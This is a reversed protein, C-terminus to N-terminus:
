SCSSGGSWSGASARPGPSRAPSRARPAAARRRAACPAPPRRELADLGLARDRVDHALGLAARREHVQEVEPQQHARAAHERVRRAAHLGREHHDVREQGLPERLERHVADEHRRLEAHEGGHVLLGRGCTNSRSQRIRRPATSAGIPCALGPRLRADRDLEGRGPPAAAIAATGNPSSTSSGSGGLPCPAAPRSARARSRDPRPCPGSRELGVTGPPTTPRITSARPRRGNASGSSRAARM